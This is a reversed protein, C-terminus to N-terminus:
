AATWRTSPQRCPRISAWSPLSRRDHLNRHDIRRQERRPVVVAQTLSDRRPPMLNRQEPTRHPLGIRDHGLTVLIHRTEEAKALPQPREQALPAHPLSDLREVIREIGSKSRQRRHLAIDRMELPQREGHGIGGQHTPQATSRRQDMRNVIGPGIMPVALGGLRASIFRQKGLEISQDHMPLLRAVHQKRLTMIRLADVDYRM